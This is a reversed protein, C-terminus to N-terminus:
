AKHACVYLTGVRRPESDLDSDFSRQKVETFGATELLHQVTRFDFAFRHEGDQRFHQNIHEMETVCWPPHWKGAYEFYGDEGVGAYEMLPWETDPVGVSM